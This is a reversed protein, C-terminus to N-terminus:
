RMIHQNNQELSRVDKHPAARTVDVRIALLPREVVNHESSYGSDLFIVGGATLTNEEEGFFNNCVPQRFLVNISIRKFIM